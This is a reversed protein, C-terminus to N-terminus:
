AIPNDFCEDDEDNKFVVMDATGLHHSLLGTQLKRKEPSSLNHNNDNLLEELLRNANRLLSQPKFKTSNKFDETATFVIQEDSSPNNSPRHLKFSGRKNM